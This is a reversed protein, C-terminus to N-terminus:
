PTSAHKTVSLLKFNADLLVTARNPEDAGKIELEWNPALRKVSALSNYVYPRADFKLAKPRFFDGELQDLYIRDVWRSNSELSGRRTAIPDTEQWHETVFSWAKELSDFKLDSHYILIAGNWSWFEDWKGDHLFIVHDRLEACNAAKNANPKFGVNFSQESLGGAQWFFEGSGLKYYARVDVYTKQGKWQTVFLRSWRQYHTGDALTENCMHTYEPLFRPSATQARSPGIPLTLLILVCLVPQRVRM